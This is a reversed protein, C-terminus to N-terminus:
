VDRFVVISGSYCAVWVQRRAGDYTVAIPHVDTAVTQIVRMDRTRVKSLTAEDYNVVYLERGDPAIVM